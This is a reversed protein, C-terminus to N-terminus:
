CRNQQKPIGTFHYISEKWKNKSKKKKVNKERNSRNEGCSM